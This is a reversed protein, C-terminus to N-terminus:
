NYEIGILEHQYKIISDLASQKLKIYDNLIKDSKNFEIIKELELKLKSIDAEVINYVLGTSFEDLKEM